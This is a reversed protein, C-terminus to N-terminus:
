GRSRSDILGLRQLHFLEDRLTRDVAPPDIPALINAFQRDRKWHKFLENFVSM